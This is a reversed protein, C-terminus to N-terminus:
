KRKNQKQWGKLKRRKPKYCGCRAARMIDERVLALYKLDSMISFVRM